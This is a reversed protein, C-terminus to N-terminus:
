LRTRQTGYLRVHRVQGLQVLRQALGLAGREEM